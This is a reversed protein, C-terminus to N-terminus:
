DTTISVSVQRFMLLCSHYVFGNVLQCGDPVTHSLPSVSILLMGDKSTFWSNELIPLTESKGALDLFMNRNVPRHIHSSKYAVKHCTFRRHKNCLCLGVSGYGDCDCLLAM